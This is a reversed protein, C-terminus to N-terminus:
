STKRISTHAGPRARDQTGEWGREEAGDGHPWRERSGTRVPRPAAAPRAPWLGHPSVLSGRTRQTLDELHLGGPGGPQGTGSLEQQRTWAPCSGTGRAEQSISHRGSARPEREWQPGGGARDMVSWPFSVRLEWKRTAVSPFCPSVPQNSCYIKLCYYGRLFCNIYFSGTFGEVSQKALQSVWSSSQEGLVSTGGGPKGQFGKTQVRREPSKGSFLTGM